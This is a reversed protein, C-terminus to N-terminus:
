VPYIIPKCPDVYKYGHLPGRLRSQMMPPQKLGPSQSDDDDDDDDNDDYTDNSSQSLYRRPVTIPLKKCCAEVCHSCNHKCM